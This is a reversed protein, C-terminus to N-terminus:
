SVATYGFASMLSLPLCHVTSLIQPTRHQDPLGFVLIIRRGLIPTHGHARRQNRYLNSNGTGDCPVTLFDRRADVFRGDLLAHSQPFQIEVSVLLGIQGGMPSTILGHIGIGGLMIWEPLLFQLSDIKWPSCKPFVERCRTKQLAGNAESIAKRDAGRFDDDRLRSNWAEFQIQLEVPVIHCLAEQGAMAATKIQSHKVLSFGARSVFDHRGM